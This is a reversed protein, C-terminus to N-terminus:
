MAVGEADGALGSGTSTTDTVRRRPPRPVAKEQETFRPLRPRGRTIRRYHDSGYKALTKEGGRLRQEPTFTM